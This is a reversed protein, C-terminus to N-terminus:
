VAPRQTDAADPQAAISAATRAADGAAPPVAVHDRITECRARIAELAQEITDAQQHAEAPDSKIAQLQRQIIHIEAQIDSSPM